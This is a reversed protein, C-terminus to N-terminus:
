QKDKKDEKDKKDKYDPEVVIAKYKIKAFAKILNEPNTKESDYQITVLKTQLDPNIAKVGKEFRLNNKIKNVCSECHIDPETTFVVEKISQAQTLVALFLAFTLLILKKM